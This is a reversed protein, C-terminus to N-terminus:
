FGLSVYFLFEGHEKKLNQGLFNSFPTKFVTFDAQFRLVWADTPIELCKM